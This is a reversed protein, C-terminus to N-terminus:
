FYHRNAAGLIQREQHRNGAGFVPTEQHRNGASTKANEPVLPNASKPRLRVYRASKNARAKSAVAEAQDVTEIQRWDDGAPVGDDTPLYTLLFLTPRRFDANGAVGRQTVRLVGLAEAERLGPGIAHRHIGAAEFQSYTHPLNGNDKGGHHCLESELCLLIRHVTLSAVRISPSRIFDIPRMIFQGKMKPRRQNSM